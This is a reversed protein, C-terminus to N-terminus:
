LPPGCTSRLFAVSVRLSRILNPLQATLHAGARDRRPLDHSQARTGKRAIGRRKVQSPSFM